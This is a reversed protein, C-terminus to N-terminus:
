HRTETIGLNIFFQHISKEAGEEFQAVVLHFPYEIGRDNMLIGVGKETRVWYGGNSAILAEGLYSGFGMTLKQFGTEDFDGNRLRNIYGDLWEVSEATYTLNVELHTRCTDVVLTVADRIERLQSETIPQFDDPIRDMAHTM